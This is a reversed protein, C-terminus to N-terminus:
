INNNYGGRDINKEMWKKEWGMNNKGKKEGQGMNNRGKMKKM